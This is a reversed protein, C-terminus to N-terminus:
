ISILRGLAVSLNEILFKMIGNDIVKGKMLQM